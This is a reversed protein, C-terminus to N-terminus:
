LIRHYVAGKRSESVRLACLEDNLATDTKVAANSGPGLNRQRPACSPLPSVPIRTPNARHLSVMASASHSKPEPSWLRDLALRKDPEPSLRLTNDRGPPSSIRQGLSTTEVISPGHM